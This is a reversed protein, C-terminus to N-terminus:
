PATNGYLLYYDPEGFCRFGISEGDPSLVVGGLTRSCHLILLTGDAERGAVVGVHSLDPFFALDGPRAEAATLPRCRRWQDRVGSGIVSFAGTEGAANVATWSVYGSCDLGFPMTKGTDSGGEATVVAPAGWRSDWGIADSKGGWFYGVRGVLSCATLVFTRRASDLGQPLVAKIREEAESDPVQRPRSHLQPLLFILASCLVALFFAPAKSKRRRRRRTM